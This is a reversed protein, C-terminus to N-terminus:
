EAPPEWPPVPGPYILGSFQSTGAMSDKWNAVFSWGEYAGTGELLLLYSAVGLALDATGSWPGVWTGDPGDIEYTGWYICSTGPYCAMFFEGQSPGSVRPDSAENTCEFLPIHGRTVGDEDSTSLDGSTCRETGTVLASEPSMTPAESPATSPDQALVTGALETPLALTAVCALFLRVTRM